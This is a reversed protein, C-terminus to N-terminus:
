ASPLLSAASRDAVIILGPHEQLLSAPLSPTVPGTVAQALVEAKEAGSALLLVSRAAMILGMGITLGFEPPELDPFYAKASLRSQATLEVKQCPARMDTRPENYGIHGNRGIGVVALDIGGGLAEAYRHCEVEPDAAHSRLHDFHGVPGHDILLRRLTAAFTAPHGEPLPWLEDLAFFRAQSLDTRGAQWETRLLHYMGLPTNGTPLVVQPTPRDRLVRMVHAAAAQSLEDYDNVITIQM